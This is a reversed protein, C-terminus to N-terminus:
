AKASGCILQEAPVAARVDEIQYGNFNNVAAHDDCEPKGRTHTASGSPAVPIAATLDTLWPIM